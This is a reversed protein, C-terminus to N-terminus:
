RSGIGVQIFASDGREFSELRKTLKLLDPPLRATPPRLIARLREGVETCIAESHTRTIEVGNQDQHSM